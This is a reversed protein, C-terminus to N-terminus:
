CAHKATQQFPSQQLIWGVNYEGISVLELSRSKYTVKKFFFLVNKRLWLLKAHTCTHTYIHVLFSRPPKKMM